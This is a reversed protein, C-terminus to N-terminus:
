GVVIVIGSQFVLAATFAAIWRHSVKVAKSTYELM